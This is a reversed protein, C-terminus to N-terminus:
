AFARELVDIIGADYGARVPVLDKRGPVKSMGFYAEVHRVPAGDGVVAAVAARRLDHVGAQVGATEAAARVLQVLRPIRLEPLLFDEPDTDQGELYADLAAAASPALRITRPMREAGVRLRRGDEGHVYDKVRLAEVEGPRLGALLLLAVGARALADSRVEAFVARADAVPIIDTTLM